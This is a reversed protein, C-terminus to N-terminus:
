EKRSKKNGFFRELSNQGFKRTEGPYQQPRNDVDIKVLKSPRGGMAIDHVSEDKLRPGLFKSIDRVVDNQLNNYRMHSLRECTKSEPNYVQQYTFALIARQFYLLIESRSTTDQKNGVGTSLVLKKKSWAIVNEYHKQEMIEDYAKRIGIGALNPLYDCGIMIAMELLKKQSFDKYGINVEKLRDFSYYDCTEKEFNINYIIKKCGFAILDTDKNIVADIIKKSALHTSQADAEYPAVFFEVEMEETLWRSRNPIYRDKPWKYRLKDDVPENDSHVNVDSDSDSGSIDSDPDRIENTNNKNNNNNNESEIAKRLEKIHTKLPTANGDFVMTPILGNQKLVDIRKRCYEMFLNAHLEYNKKQHDELTRHVIVLWSTADVGVRAIGESGLRDLRIGKKVANDGFSNLLESGKGIGM